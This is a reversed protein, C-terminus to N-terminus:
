REATNAATVSQDALSSGIDRLSTALSADAPSFAQGEQLAQMAQQFAAIDQERQLNRPYRQGVRAIAELASTKRHNADGFPAPESWRDAAPDFAELDKWMALYAASWDALEESLQVKRPDKWESM